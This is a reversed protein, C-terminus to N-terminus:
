RKIKFYQCCHDIAHGQIGYNVLVSVVHKLNLKWSFDYNKALDFFSKMLFDSIHRDKCVSICYLLYNMVTKFDNEDCILLSQASPMLHRLFTNKDSLIDDITQDSFNHGKLYPRREYKFDKELCLDDVFCCNIKIQNNKTQFETKTLSFM